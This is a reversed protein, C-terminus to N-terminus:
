YQSFVLSQRLNPQSVHTRPSQVSHGHPKGHLMSPLQPASPHVIQKSPVHRAFQPPAHKASLPQGRGHGNQLLLVHPVHGAGGVTGGRVDNFGAQAFM